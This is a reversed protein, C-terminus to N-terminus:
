RTEKGRKSYSYILSSAILIAILALGLPSKLFLVVLGIYPVKGAYKGIVNGAPVSWPDEDPNNDGRTKFYTEGNETLKEVVRHVTPSQAVGDYPSPVNFAIVDGM